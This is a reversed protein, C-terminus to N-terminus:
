LKSVASSFACQPAERTGKMYLVIENESIQSKITELVTNPGM